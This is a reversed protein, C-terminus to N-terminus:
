EKVYIYPDGQFFVDWDKYQMDQLINKEKKTWHIGDDSVFLPIYLKGHTGVEHGVLFYQGKEKWVFPSAIGYLPIRIDIRLLKCVFEGVRRLLRPLMFYSIIPKEKKKWVLGDISEAYGVRFFASHSRAGYWLKYLGEERIVMPYLLYNGEWVLSPSLVAENKINWDFGNTSEAYGFGSSNNQTLTFWMKYVGSEYMVHPHQIGYRFGEGKGLSLVPTERFSWSTLDKSEAYMVNFVGGKSKAQYWMKYVGDVFIVCPNSTQEDTCGVVESVSVLPDKESRIWQSLNDSKLLGIQEIRTTINYGAYFLNYKM